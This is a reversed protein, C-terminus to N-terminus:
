SSGYLVLEDGTSEDSYTYTQGFLELEDGDEFVEDANANANGNDTATFDVTEDMEVEGQLLYEDSNGVEPSTPNEVHLVPDDVDGRDSNFAQTQSGVRLDHEFEVDENDASQVTVDELDQIDQGDLRSEETDTDRPYFVPSNQRDLAIGNEASWSATAGSVDVNVEEEMFAANGLSGAVNIAGVVDATAAQEGVVVTTDVEGDENVFPTPYDGLDMSGSDDMNHSSASALGAAGTLTAGVLLASGAVAKGTSKLKKISKM